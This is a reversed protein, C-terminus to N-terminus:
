KDFHYIQIQIKNKLLVLFSYKIIKSIFKIKTDRDSM